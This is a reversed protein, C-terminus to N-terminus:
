FNISFRMKDTGSCKGNKMEDELAIFGGIDRGVLGGGGYLEGGPKGFMAFAKAVDIRWAEVFAVDAAFEVVEAVDELVSWPLGYSAREDLRREPEQLPAGAVALAMAGGWPWGNKILEMETSMWIGAKWLM